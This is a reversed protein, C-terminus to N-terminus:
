KVFPVIKQKLKLPYAAAALIGNVVLIYYKIYLVM